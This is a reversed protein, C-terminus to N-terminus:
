GPNSPPRGSHWHQHDPVYHQDTVPDYQWPQPNAINPKTRSGLNPQNALPQSLLPNTASAPAKGTDWHNGAAHWHRDTVPDYQWPQPNNINLNSGQGLITLPANNTIPTNATPTDSDQDPMFWAFVTIGCVLLGILFWTSAAKLSITASSKGCCLKFQKGSGCSCIADPNM